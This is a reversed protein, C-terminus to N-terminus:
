LLMQRNYGDRYVYFTSKKYFIIELVLDTDLSGYVLTPEAHKVFLNLINNLVDLFLQNTETLLESFLELEYTSLIRERSVYGLSVVISLGTDGTCLAFFEGFERLLRNMMMMMMMVIWLVCM